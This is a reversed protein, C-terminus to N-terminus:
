DWVHTSPSLNFLLVKGASLSDDSVPLLEFAQLRGSCVQRAESELAFLLLIFSDVSVRLVVM